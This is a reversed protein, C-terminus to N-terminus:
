LCYKMFAGQEKNSKIKPISLVEHKNVDSYMKAGQKNIIYEQTTM